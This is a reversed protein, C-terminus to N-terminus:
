EIILTQEDTSRVYSANEFVATLTYTDPTIDEDFTYELTAIGDVVDVVILQGENDELSIGDLKFALRGNLQSDDSLDTVSATLTVTQGPTITLDETTIEVLADRKAINMSISATKVAGNCTFVATLVADSRLWETPINSIDFMATSSSVSVIIPNNHEDTVIDDNIMLYVEGDEVPNGTIDDVVNVTIITEDGVIADVPEIEINWLDEQSPGNHSTDIRATDSIADAGFKNYNDSILYNNTVTTSAITNTIAYPNNTIITNDTIQTNTSTSPISISGNISNNTIQYNETYTLTINGGITNNEIINNTNKKTRYGNSIINGYIINDAVVCNSVANRTQTNYNLNVDGTITNNRLTTD